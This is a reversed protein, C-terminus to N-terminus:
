RNFGGIKQPIKNEESVYTNRKRHVKLCLYRTKINKEVSFTNV